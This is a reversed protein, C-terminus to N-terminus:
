LLLALASVQGMTLMFGFLRIALAANRLVVSVAGGLGAIAALEFGVLHLASDAVSLGLVAFLLAFWLCAAALGLRMAPAPRRLRQPVRYYLEHARLVHRITTPNSLRALM